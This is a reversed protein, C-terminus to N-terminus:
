GMRSADCFLSHTPQSQGVAGDAGGATESPFCCMTVGVQLIHQIDEM